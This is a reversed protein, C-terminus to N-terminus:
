KQAAKLKRKSDIRVLPMFGTGDPNVTFVLVDHQNEPYPCNHRSGGRKCETNIAIRDTTPNWSARPLPNKVIWRHAPTPGVPRVEESELDVMCPRSWSNILIYRGTPSWDLSVANDYIDHGHIGPHYGYDGGCGTDHLDISREKSDVLELINLTKRGRPEPRSTRKEYAIVEEAQSEDFRLSTYALKDGNPSWTIGGVVKEMSTSQFEPNDPNPFSVGPFRKHEILNDLDADSTALFTDGKEDFATKEKTEWLWTEPMAGTAAYARSDDSLVMAFRGNHHSVPHIHDYTWAVRREETGDDNVTFAGDEEDGGVWKRIFTVTQGEDTWIPNLEWAPSDTLRTRNSGDIDMVEIDANRWGLDKNKLKHRTTSYVIRSGDPSVEPAQHVEYDDHDGSTLRKLKTGDTTVTYITDRHQFVIM